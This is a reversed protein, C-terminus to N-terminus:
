LYGMTELSELVEPSIRSEGDEGQEEQRVADESLAKLAKEVFDRDFPDAMTTPGSDNRYPASAKEYAKLLARGRAGETPMADMLNTREEPDDRLNFLADREPHAWPDLPLFDAEKARGALTGQLLWFEKCEDAGLWRPGTIYKFDDFLVAHLQARTEPFLSAYVPGRRPVYDWTSEGAAVLYQGAVDGSFPAHPRHLLRLVTPMVDCISVRESVRRPAILEPARIILPIRLTEEYLNWAHDAFGHEMFEEGHDSLFVVVTKSLLGLEELGELYRKIAGDIYAIEGDYHKKLEALRPDDSVMGRTVMAAPSHDGTPDLVERDIGFAELNEAPPNYPAHPAYYHLYQFTREGAHRKAFDLAADTLQGDLETTNDRGPFLEAEQFSDYFGRFRMVFSTSFIGTKYGAAELLKPLNESQPTPQATWGLGRAIMAPPRGTFLSAVAEGTFTSATYANEFVVGDRALGDIAPTVAREYGNYGLHDPRLTDVLIIALNYGEGPLHAGEPAPTCGAAIFLLPILPSIYWNSRV